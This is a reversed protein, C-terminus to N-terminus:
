PKLYSVREKVAPRELLGQGITIGSYFVSNSLDGSVIRTFLLGVRFLLRLILLVNPAMCIRSGWVTGYRDACIDAASAHRALAVVDQTCQCVIPM